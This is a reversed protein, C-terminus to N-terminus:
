LELDVTVKLAQLHARPGLGSLLMLKTTGVTGASLVVESAKVTYPKGDKVFM